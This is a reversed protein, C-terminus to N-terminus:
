ATEEAPIEEAPVTQLIGNAMGKFVVNHLPLVSYWYLRGMVGKPRFTANQELVLTSPDETPSIRLELWAEGPLKMEAYLLLRGQDKDALLVRWFDLADGATLSSKNKRGRRLGVGGIVQDMLGRVEWLWNGSYWGTEGGISWINQIVTDRNEAPFEYQRNDQFCGQEPIKVNDSYRSDLKGNVVADKWSSLVTDQQIIDLAHELAERYSVSEVQVIDDIRNDRCVVENKMSDVLNVALPYSTSTVFYLWYSSLRPTMVPVSVITRGLSRVDAYGQIMEKYTLIDPGGIDYTEGYTEEKGMVSYLYDLVSRVAIPQCKTSLWKPAIMFPLKEVLDRIIEFSASGSGIIIAARLVTLPIKSQGLVEETHNRSSLHESLEDDNSIGSLFIIQKLQTTDAYKSFLEAMRSEMDAFKDSTHTLSHVLYYAVDIEKPLRDYDPAVLLDAEIIKLSTGYAQFSSTDLRRKDRVTAIVEHGQELLVQMLRKGIYGNAGTLLIRQKIM